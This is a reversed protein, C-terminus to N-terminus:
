YKKTKNKLEKKQENAEKILKKGVDLLKILKKHEKVFDKKNMEIKKKSNKKSNKKVM